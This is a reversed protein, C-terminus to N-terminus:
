PTRLEPLLAAAQSRTAVGMRTLIASVHHDVTKPSIFLRDAIEANTLDQALLELVEMQRRTLGAPNDRTSRSRGRGLSIGRDRLMQRVRDRSAAAGLDEMTRAAEAMLHPDDSFTLSVCAEYPFRLQKWVAAAEAHDGNLEHRLPSPGADPPTVEVGLRRLWVAIESSWRVFGSRRALRWVRDLFSLENTMGLWTLEAAAAGAPGLRQIDNSTEALRIAEELHDLAEPDGMRGKLLSMVTVASCRRVGTEVTRLVKEADEAATGWEARHLHLRCTQGALMIELNLSDIGEAFAAADRLDDDVHGLMLTNIAGAIRNGYLVSLEDHAHRDRFIGLALDGDARSEEEEGLAMRWPERASHAMGIVLPDGSTDALEVAQNLASLAEHIRSSLGLQQGKGIYALALETSPPATELVAVAQDLLSAAREPRALIWEARSAHNLSSGQRIPDGSEEWLSAATQSAQYSEQTRQNLWYEQAALDWVDARERPGMDDLHDLIIEVHRLAETHAGAEAATEAALRSFRLLTAVDGAGEAHHAIHSPSADHLLCADLVRRHLERARSVTLKEAVARRLLEHRFSVGNPRSTALDELELDALATSDPGLLSEMIEWDIEGPVVALLEAAETASEPLAAIRAAVSDTITDPLSDDTALLETVLFPNGGTLEYLQDADRGSGEALRNVASRSLESLTIRTLRGSPIQGLLRTVPNEQTLGSRFTVIVPATAREIRRGVHALADITSQDAWHLDEIALVPASEGVLSEVLFRRFVQIGMDLAAAFDKSDRAMDEFPGLTQPITLDDCIGVVASRGAEDLVYRLLTSKGIGAPGEIAVVSGGRREASTIVDMIREIAVERELPPSPM